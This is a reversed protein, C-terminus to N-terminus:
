LPMCRATRVECPAIDAFDCCPAEVPTASPTAVSTTIFSAARCDLWGAVYANRIIAIDPHQQTIRARIMYDTFGPHEAIVPYRSAAGAEAPANVYADCEACENFCHGCHGNSADTSTM